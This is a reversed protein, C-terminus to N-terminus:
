KMVEGYNSLLLQTLSTTISLVLSAEVEVEMEKFRLDGDRGKAMAM